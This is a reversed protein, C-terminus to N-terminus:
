SKFDAMTLPTDTAYGDRTIPGTYGSERLDYFRTDAATEPEGDSRRTQPANATM